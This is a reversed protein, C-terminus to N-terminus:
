LSQRRAVRCFAVLLVTIMGLQIVGLAGSLSTEGASSYGYIRTSMVDTGDSSLILTITLERLTLLAIWFWAYVLSGRVTPLVVSLFARGRRIGSVAAAEELEHHVQLMTGHLTRYATAVFRCAVVLALFAATGYLPLWRYVSLGVYVFSVAMVISPIALTMMILADLGRRGRLRTRTVLWGACAAFAVAATPVVAVLLLTNPLVEALDYAADTYAAFSLDAFAAASPPRLYPMLSAWVLMLVPLVVGALAYSGILGYAATRGGRTLRIPERAARKGTVTALQNARRMARYYAFMVLGIGLAMGLGVAAANGYEPVGTSGQTYQYILTSLVTIRSPMGLMGAYDFVEVAVIFFFISVGAIAPAAVPLLLQLAARWRPIGHVAAAEEINVDIVRLTPVLMFFAPGAFDLGQLLIIWKLSYVNSLPAGGGLDGWWTNIIGNSPNFMFIYGLAVLFGPIAMKAAALFLIVTKGRLDTRTYLWALPVAVVLMVLVSGVGLLLTRVLTGGLGSSALVTRFNDLSPAGGGFGEGPGFAAWVLGALPVLLVACLLVIMAALVALPVDVGRRPRRARSPPGPRPTGREDDDAAPPGTVAESVSHSGM